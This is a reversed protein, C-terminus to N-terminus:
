FNTVLASASELLPEAPGSPDKEVHFCYLRLLAGAEWVALDKERIGSSPIFTDRFHDAVEKAERVQNQRIGTLILRALFDGADIIPHSLTFGSLQDIGIRGQEWM